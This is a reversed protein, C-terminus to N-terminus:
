KQKIIGYSQKKWADRFKNYYDIPQFVPAYTLEWELGCKCVAYAKKNKTDAYIQLLEKRCKPCYYPGNVMQKADKILIKMRTAAVKHLKKTPAKEPKESSM